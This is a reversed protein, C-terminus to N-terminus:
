RRCRVNKAQRPHREAELPRELSHQRRDRHGVVVAVAKEIEVQADVRVEVARALVLRSRRHRVVVGAVTRGADEEPVIPVPVEDFDRLLGPEVRAVVPIVERGRPGVVVAVAPGVQQHRVVEAGLVKVARPSAPRALHRELIHCGVGAHEVVAGSHARGEEVVVVVTQEVDVGAVHPARAAQPHRGRGGEHRVSRRVHAREIPAVGAAVGEEPVAAISAELVPRELRAGLHAAPRPRGVRQVEVAVPPLVDVDDVAHQRPVSAPRGRPSRRADPRPGSAAPRTM